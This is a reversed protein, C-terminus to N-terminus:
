TRVKVESNDKSLLLLEKMTRGIVPHVYDPAIENMPALTFRRDQIYPHPIKLDPLDTTDNGYFLIDIDIVRPGWKTTQVRGLEKEITKLLILLDTPKLATTTLIAQNLFNNQEKLGWAETEYLSSSKVITGCREEILMRAASLNDEPKGENSGLLLYVNTM